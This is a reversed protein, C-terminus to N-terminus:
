KLREELEDLTYTKFAEVLLDRKLEDIPSSVEFDQNVENPLVFGAKRLAKVFRERRAKNQLRYELEGIIDEDSFDETDVYVEVYAM